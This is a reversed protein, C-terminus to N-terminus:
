LYQFRFQKLVSGIFVWNTIFYNIIVSDFAKRFDNMACGLLKVENIAKLWTDTM